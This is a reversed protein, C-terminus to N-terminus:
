TTTNTQLLAVDEAYFRYHGGPTQFYPLKGEDAWRVVTKPTVGFLAAVDGTSLPKALTEEMRVLLGYLRSM